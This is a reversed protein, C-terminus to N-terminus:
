GSQIAMMDTIVECACEFAIAEEQTWQQMDAGKAPAHRWRLGSRPDGTM